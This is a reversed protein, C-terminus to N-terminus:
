WRVGIYSDRGLIEMEVCYSFRLGLLEMEGGFIEM